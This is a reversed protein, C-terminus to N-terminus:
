NKSKDRAAKFAEIDALLDRGFEEFKDNDQELEEIVARAASSYRELEERVLAHPPEKGRLRFECNLDSQIARSERNRPDHAMRKFAQVWQKTLEQESLDKHTRGRAIYDAQDDVEKNALYGTV